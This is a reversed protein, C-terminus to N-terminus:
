PLGTLKFTEMQQSSEESRMIIQSRGPAPQFGWHNNSERTFTSQLHNDRMAHVSAPTQPTPPPQHLTPPCSDVGCPRPHPSAVRMKKSFLNEYGRAAQAARTRVGPFNIKIKPLKAIAGSPKTRSTVKAREMTEEVATNNHKRYVEEITNELDEESLSLDM